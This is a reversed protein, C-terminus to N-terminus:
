PTRTELRDTQVSVTELLLNTEDQMSSPPPTRRVKAVPSRKFGSGYLTVVTGGSVHGKPPSLWSIQPPCSPLPTLRRDFSISASFCSDASSLRSLSWRRARSSAPKSLTSRDTTLCLRVMPPTEFDESIGYGNQALAVRSSALCAIALLATRALRTMTRAPVSTTSMLTVV